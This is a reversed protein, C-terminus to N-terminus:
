TRDSAESLEDFGPDNFFNQHEELTRGILFGKGSTTYFPFANAFLIDNPVETYPVHSISIGTVV